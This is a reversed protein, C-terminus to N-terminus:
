GGGSVNGGGSGAIPGGPGPFNGARLHAEDDPPPGTLEAGHVYADDGSGTARSRRLMFVLGLFVVAAFIWLEM